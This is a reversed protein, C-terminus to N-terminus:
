AMYHDVDANNVYDPLDNQSLLPNFDVAEQLPHMSIGQDHVDVVENADLQGNHDLDSAMVDAQGDLNADIIGIEHGNVNVVAIDIQEGTETTERNYDVVEVDNNGFVDMHIVPNTPGVPDPTPEPTPDPTPEPTPDVVPEHTTEQVHPQEQVDVVVVQPEEEAVPEETTEAAQAETPTVLTGMVAGAVAGGMASAGSAMKEKLNEKM